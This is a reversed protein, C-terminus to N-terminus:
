SPDILRFFWKEPDAEATLPDIDSVASRENLIDWGFVPDIMASDGVLDGKFGSGAEALNEALCFELHVGEVVLGDATEAFFKAENCFAGIADNFRDFGGVWIAKEDADLPMGFLHGRSIEELGFKHFGEDLSRM